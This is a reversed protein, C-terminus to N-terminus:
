FVSQLGCECMRTRSHNWQRPARVAGLMVQESTTELQQQLQRQHRQMHPNPTATSFWRRAFVRPAAAGSTVIRLM